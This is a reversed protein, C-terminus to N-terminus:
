SHAQSLDILLKRSGADILASVEASLNTAAPYVLRGEKVRLVKVDGFSEIQLNM